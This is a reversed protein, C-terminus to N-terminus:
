TRKILLMRISKLVFKIKEENTLSRDKRGFYSNFRRDYHESVCSFMFLMVHNDIIHSAVKRDIKEDIEGRRKGEDVCRLWFEKAPDEIRESLSPAFKSMSPSGLDFYVVIYEPHKEALDIVEMLLDRLKTYVSKETSSYREYEISFLEVTRDFVSTFLDEKNKFYKYLAGNSIRAKKCIDAVNARYYGKKAFVKAAADLVAVQKMIPLKKFTELM